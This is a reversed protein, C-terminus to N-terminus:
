NARDQIPGMHGVRLLNYVSFWFIFLAKHYFIFNFLKLGFTKLVWTRNRRELPMLFTNSAAKFHYFTTFLQKAQSLRTFFSYTGM